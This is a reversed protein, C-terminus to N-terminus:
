LNDIFTWGSLGRSNKWSSYDSNKPIYVTGTAPINHFPDNSLVPATTAYSKIKYLSGNNTFAISGSISTLSSPLSISGIPLAYFSNNITTLNRGVIVKQIHTQSSYLTGISRLNNSFVVTIVTDSAGFFMSEVSYVNRDFEMKCYGSNPDYYNYTINCNNDNVDKIAFTALSSLPQNDSTKVWIENESLQDSILFDSDAQEADTAKVLLEIYYPVDSWGIGSSVDLGRSRLSDIIANLEAQSGGSGSSIELIKDAYSSLLLDSSVNVGKSEIASKISAKANIIRQLEESISM